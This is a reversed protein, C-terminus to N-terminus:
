VAITGACHTGHGNVDNACNIDGNCRQPPNTTMDLEPIARGQFEAHTTRIGTDLVYVHIGAGTTDFNDYSQDLGNEDDLRDLGWLRSDVTQEALKREANMWGRKVRLESATVTIDEEVFLAGNNRELLQKLQSKTGQYIIASVGSEGPKGRWKVEGPSDSGFDNLRNTNWNDPCQIIWQRSETSDVHESSEAVGTNAL